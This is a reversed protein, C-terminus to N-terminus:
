RTNRRLSKWVVLGYRTSGYGGMIEGKFKAFDNYIHRLMTRAVGPSFTISCLNWTMPAAVSTQIVDGKPYQPKM